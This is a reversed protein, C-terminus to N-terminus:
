WIFTTILVFALAVLYYIWLIKETVKAVKKM